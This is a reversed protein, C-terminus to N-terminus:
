HTSQAPPTLDLTIVLWGQPAELQRSFRTENLRVSFGQVGGQNPGRNAAKFAAKIEALLALEAARVAAAKQAQSSGCAEPAVELHCVLLLGTDADRASGDRQNAYGTESELMLNVCGAALDDPSRAAAPTFGGEVIRTGLQAQLYALFADFRQATDDIPTAFMAM